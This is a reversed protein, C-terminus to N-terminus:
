TKGFWGNGHGPSVDSGLYMVLKFARVRKPALGPGGGLEPRIVKVKGTRPIECCLGGAFLYFFYAWILASRLTNMVFSLFPSEWDESLRWKRLLLNIATINQSTLAM